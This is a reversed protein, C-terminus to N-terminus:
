SLICLSLNRLPAHLLSGNKQKLVFKQWKKMLFLLSHPTQAMMWPQIGGTPLCSQSGADKQRLGGKQKRTQNTGCTVNLWAEFESSRASWTNVQSSPTESASLWLHGQLVLLLSTVGLHTARRSWKEAQLERAEHSQLWIWLIMKWFLFCVIIEWIWIRDNVMWVNSLPLM